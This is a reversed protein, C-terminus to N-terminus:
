EKDQALMTRIEKLAADFAECRKTYADFAKISTATGATYQYYRALQSIAQQNAKEMKTLLKEIRTSMKMGELAEHRPAHYNGTLWHCAFAAMAIKASGNTGFSRM